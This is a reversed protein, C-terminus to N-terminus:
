MQRYEAPINPEFVSPDITPDWQFQDWVFTFRNRGHNYTFEGELRVPYDTQTDVWIRAMFTEMSGNGPLVAPDTTEIGDCLVGEVTKPRLTKHRCSVFRRVMSKPDMGFDDPDDPPEQFSVKSCYKHVHDVVFVTRTDFDSYLTGILQGKKYKDVRWQMASRHNIGYDFGIDQPDPTNRLVSRFIVNRSAQVKRAVDALVVGSTSGMNIFEFLGLVVAAIITAAIALRTISNRM